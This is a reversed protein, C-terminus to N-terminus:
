ALRWLGVTDQDLRRVAVKIGLMKSRAVATRSQRVTLRVSDGAVMKQLLEVYGSAANTVIPPLRVGKLIVVSTADLGERPARPPKVPLARAGAAFVSSAGVPSTGGPWSGAAHHVRRPQGDDDDHDGTQPAAPKLRPM